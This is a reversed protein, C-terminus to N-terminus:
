VYVGGTGGGCCHPLDLGEAGWGTVVYPHFGGAGAGGVHTEGTAFVENEVAVAVASRKHCMCAARM